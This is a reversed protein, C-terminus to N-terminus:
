IEKKVHGCNKCQWSITTVQGMEESWCSYEVKIYEHETCVEQMFLSNDIKIVGACQSNPPLVFHLKDM